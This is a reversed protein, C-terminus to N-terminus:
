RTAEDIHFLLLKTSDFEPYSEVYILAFNKKGKRRFDASIDINTSLRTLLRFFILFNGRSVTADPVIIVQWAVLQSFTPFTKRLSFQRRSCLDLAKLWCLSIEWRNIQKHAWHFLRFWNTKRISFKEENSNLKGIKRSSIDQWNRWLM